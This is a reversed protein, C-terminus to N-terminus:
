KKPSKVKKGQGSKVKKKVKEMKLARKKFKEVQGAIDVIKARGTYFPHCKSCIEIEVEKKTSPIHFVAGCACRYIADKYYKPHTKEKM